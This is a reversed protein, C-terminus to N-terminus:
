LAQHKCNIRTNSNQKSKHLQDGHHEGAGVNCLDASPGPPSLQETPRVSGIVFLVLGGDVALM